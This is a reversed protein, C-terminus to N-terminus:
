SVCPSCKVSQKHNKNNEQLFTSKLIRHLNIQHLDKNRRYATFPKKYYVKKFKENIIGANILLM